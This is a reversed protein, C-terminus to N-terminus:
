TGSRITWCSTSCTQEAIASVTTVMRSVNGAQDKLKGVLGTSDRVLGAALGPPGGPVYSMVNVAKWSEQTKLWHSPMASITTFVRYYNSGPWGCAALGIAAIIALEGGKLPWRDGITGLLPNLGLLLLMIVGFVGIPLFNGILMTQRVVADNFYTLGSLALGLILGLIVARLSM